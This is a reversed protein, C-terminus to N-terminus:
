KFAGEVTEFYCNGVTLIRGNKVEFVEWAIGAHVTPANFHAIIGDKDYITVSANCKSMDYAMNNTGYNKSDTVYYKFDKEKDLKFKLVDKSESKGDSMSMYYPTLKAENKDYELVAEYEGDDLDDPAKKNINMYYVDTDHANQGKPAMYMIGCSYETVEGTISIDNASDPVFDGYTFTINYYDETNVPVNFEYYGDGNTKTEKEYGTAVSKITAHVNELVGGFEDAVYGYVKAGGKVKKAADYEDYGLEKITEENNEDSDGSLSYDERHRNTGYLDDSYRYEYILLGDRFYWGTVLRGISGFEMKEIKAIDGSKDKFIDTRVTAGNEKNVSDARTLSYEALNNEIEIYSPDPSYKKDRNEESRDEIDKDEKLGSGKEETAEQKEPKEAKIDTAIDNAIDEAAETVTETVAEKVEEEKGCGGLVLVAALILAATLKKM